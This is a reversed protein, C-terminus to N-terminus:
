RGLQGRIFASMDPPRAPKPPADAGTAGDRQLEQARAVIREVIAEWHDVERRNAAHRARELRAQADTLQARLHDLAEGHGSPLRSQAREPM